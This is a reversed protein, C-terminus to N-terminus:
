IKRRKVCEINASGDISVTLKKNAYKEVSSFDHTVMVVTIDHVTNLHGLFNCIEKVSNSDIGVTPEDLLMIKPRQTLARAIFVRQQQGGSLKGILSKKHKLMGVLELNDLAFQKDQKSVRSFINKKNYLVSQTVEEVTAPFDSNFNGVKQSVYAINNFDHIQKINKGLITINGKSSPLIGLILKLLTSKGTGNQGVVAVFDNKIIDVSINHLIEQDSYAFCLDRIKVAVDDM